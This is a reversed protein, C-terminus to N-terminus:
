IKEMEFLPIIRCYHIDQPVVKFGLAFIALRAKMDIEIGPVDRTAVVGFEIVSGLVSTVSYMYAYKQKM